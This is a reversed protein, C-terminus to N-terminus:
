LGTVQPSPVRLVRPLKLQCTRLSHWRTLHGIAEKTPSGPWTRTSRKRSILSSYSSSTRLSFHSLNALWSLVSIVMTIRITSNKPITLLRSLVGSWWHLTGVSLLSDWTRVSHSTLLSSTRWSILRRVLGTGKALQQRLSHVKRHSSSQRSLTWLKSSAWCM